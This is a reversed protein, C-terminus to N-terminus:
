DPMFHRAPDMRGHLIRLILVGYDTHRYYIAHSVYESRRLGPLVHDYDSGRKKKEALFAFHGSMGLAYKEAQAAGFLELGDLFIQAVDRDADLTLKYTRMGSCASLWELLMRVTM